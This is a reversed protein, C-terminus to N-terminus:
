GTQLAAPTQSTRRDSSAAARQDPKGSSISSALWEFIVFYILYNFLFRAGALKSDNCLVSRM